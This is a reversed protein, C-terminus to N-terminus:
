ALRATGVMVVDGHQNRAELQYPEGDTATVTVTDEAYVPKTFKLSL